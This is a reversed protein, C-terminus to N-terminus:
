WIRELQIQTVKVDDPLEASAIAAAFATTIHQRANPPDCADCSVSYVQGDPAHGCGIANLDPKHRNLARQIVIAVSFSLGAPGITVWARYRKEDAQGPV